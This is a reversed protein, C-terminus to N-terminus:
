LFRPSTDTPILPATANFLDKKALHTYIRMLFFTLFSFLNDTLSGHACFVLTCGKLSVIGNVSTLKELKRWHLMESFQLFHSNSFLECCECCCCQMTNLSYQACTCDSVITHNGYRSNTLAVRINLKGNGFRRKM